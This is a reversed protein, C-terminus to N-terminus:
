DNRQEVCELGVIRHLQHDTGTRLCLTELDRLQVRFNPASVLRDLGPFKEFRLKQLMSATAAFASEPECLACKHGDRM